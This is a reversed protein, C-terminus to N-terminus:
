HFLIGVTKPSMVSIILFAAQKLWAEFSEMFVALRSFVDTFTCTMFLIIWETAHKRITITFRFMPNMPEKFWVKDKRDVFNEFNQALM